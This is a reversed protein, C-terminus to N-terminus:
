DGAETRINSLLGQPPFPLLWHCSIVRPAPICSMVIRSVANSTTGHIPRRGAVNAVACASSRQSAVWLGGTSILQGLKGRCQGRM